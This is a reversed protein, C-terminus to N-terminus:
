KMLYEWLPGKKNKNRLKQIINENNEDTFVWRRQSNSTLEKVKEFDINSAIYYKPEILNDNIDIIKENIAITQLPTDPYIRMGFYPFIVTPPLLDANKITEKITQYTESYGAFILFHAFNIQLKSAIESAQLVDKFSFHKQYNKLMIDSLSETGFEIHLLGSEKYLKIIDEKFNFPSFYAGWNIKAKSKILAEALAINYKNAINFVSDTFFFYNIQKEFYLQEINRVISEISLTRLKRGDIIPYTCYICKFPCGRKTQISLMGSHKWYFDINSHDYQLNFDTFYNTKDNQIIQEKEKYILGQINSFNNNNNILNQILETLSYEAEGKIAFNPQLVEFLNKAFISFGAGGIIIKAKSIKRSIEIIEKYQNIFNKQELSNAGDINRISIGIFDYNNESLINEFDDINKFNFDFTDIQLNKINQQLHGKLYSIALPYVPYPKQYTNASILLLKHM